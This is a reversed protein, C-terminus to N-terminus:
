YLRCIAIDTQIFIQKNVYLNNIEKIKTYFEDFSAIQTENYKDTGRYYVAITNNYDIHYKDEINKIINIIQKSPSFYKKVVPIINNYDLQSYDNFQNRHHYNIINNFNLEKMNEYHEFYEFTVDSTNPKYM